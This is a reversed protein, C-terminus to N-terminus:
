NHDVIDFIIKHCMILDFTYAGYLSLLGVHNLRSAYAGIGINQIGTFRKPGPEIQTIEQISYVPVVCLM